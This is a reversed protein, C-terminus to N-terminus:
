SFSRLLVGLLALLSMSGAQHVATNYGIDRCLGRNDRRMGNHSYIPCSCQSANVGDGRYDCGSQRKYCNIGEAKSCADDCSKKDTVPNADNKSLSICPPPVASYRGYLSDYNERRNQVVQEIENKCREKVATLESILRQNQFQYQAIEQAHDEELAALKKNNSDALRVYEELERVKEREKRLLENLTEPSDEQSLDLGAARDSQTSGVQADQLMQGQLLDEIEGQSHGEVDRQELVSDYLIGTNSVQLLSIDEVEHQNCVDASSAESAIAFLEASCGVWLVLAAHLKPM